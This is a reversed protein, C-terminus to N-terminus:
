FNHSILKYEYTLRLNTHAGASVLALVELFLNFSTVLSEMFM